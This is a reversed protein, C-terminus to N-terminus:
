PAAGAPKTPPEAAALAKDDVAPNDNLVVPTREVDHTIPPLTKLYAWLAKIDEDTLKRSQLWPMVPSVRRGGVNGTRMMKIFLEESYHAIGSAHPTINASRYLTGGVVFEQGGAFAMGPVPQHHADVPTHCTECEGVAALHRGRAVPTSADPEPVPGSLPAPEMKLFWRVPVDIKTLGRAKRVPPLSRMYVIVSALEEDSLQRYDQWPMMFLARGDHSVGERIARALADDPLGGIGTEMDPTINPAFVVGPM